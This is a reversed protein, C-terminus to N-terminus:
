PSYLKDRYRISRIIGVTILKAIKHKQLMVTKSPMTEAKIDTFTKIIITGNKNPDSM